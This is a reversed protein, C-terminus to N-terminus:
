PTWKKNEYKSPVFQHKQIIEKQKKIFDPYEPSDTRMATAITGVDTDDTNWLHLNLKEYEICTIIDQINNKLKNNLIGSNILQYLTNVADTRTIM